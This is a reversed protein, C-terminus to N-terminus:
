GAKSTYEDMMKNISHRINKLGNIMEEKIVDTEHDALEIITGEIFKKTASLKANILVFKYDGNPLKMRTKFNQIENLEFLIQILKERENSEYLDKSKCSEKLEKFTSFGLLKVLHKNARMFKGDEVRTKFFGSPSNEYFKKYYTPLNYSM